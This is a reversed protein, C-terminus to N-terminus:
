PKKEYDNTMEAKQRFHLFWIGFNITESFDYDITTHPDFAIIDMLITCFHTDIKWSTDLWHSNNMHVDPHTCEFLLVWKFEILWPSSLEM